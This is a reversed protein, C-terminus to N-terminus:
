LLGYVAAMEIAETFSARPVTACTALMSICFLLGFVARTLRM